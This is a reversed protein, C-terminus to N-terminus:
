GFCKLSQYKLSYEYEHGGEGDKTQAPNLRSLLHVGASSGLPSVAM